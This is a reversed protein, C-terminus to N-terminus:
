IKLTGKSKLRTAAQQLLFSQILDRRLGPEGVDWILDSDLDLYMYPYTHGNNSRDSMDAIVQGDAVSFVILTDDDEGDSNYDKGANYSQFNSDSFLDQENVVRVGIGNDDTEFNSFRGTLNGDVALLNSKSFDPLFFIMNTGSDFLIDYGGGPVDIADTEIFLDEPDIAIEADNNYSDATVPIQYGDKMAGVLALKRLRITELSSCSQHTYTPDSITDAADANCYRTLGSANMSIGGLEATLLIDVLDDNEPFGANRRCFDEYRYVTGNLFLLDGKLFPGDDFRVNAYRNGDSGTFSILIKYLDDGRRVVINGQGQGSFPSALYSDTLYGGFTLGYKSPYNLTEDAQLGEDGDLDHMYSIKVSKLLSDNSSYDTDDYEHIHCDNVTGDSAEIDRDCADILSFEVIWDNYYRGGIELDEGDHLFVQTGLDYVVFAGVMKNVALEGYVAMIEIRDVQGNTENTVQVQVISGDPKQVDLIIGVLTSNTILMDAIKFKYGGYTENYDLNTVDDLLQGKALYITDNGEIDRVYYEEGFLIMKGRYEFDNIRDIESYWESPEQLIRKMPIYGTYVKYSTVGKNLAMTLSEGVYYNKLGREHYRIQSSNVILEESMRHMPNELRDLCLSYGLLSHINTFTGNMLLEGQATSLNEGLWVYNYFDVQRFVEPGNFYIGIDDDFFDTYSETVETDQVYRGLATTITYASIVQTSLFAFFVFLCICNGVKM